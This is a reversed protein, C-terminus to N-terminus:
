SALAIASIQLSRAGHQTPLKQLLLGEVVVSMSIRLGAAVGSWWLSSFPRALEEDGETRIIHYVLPARLRLLEEIEELEAKSLRENGRKTESGCRM